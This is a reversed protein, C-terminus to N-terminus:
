GGVQALHPPLTSPHSVVNGLCQGGDNARCIHAAARIDALMIPDIDAAFEFGMRCPQGPRRCGAFNRSYHFQGMGM